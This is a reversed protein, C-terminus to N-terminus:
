KIEEVSSKFDNDWNLEITKNVPTAIIEEVTKGAPKLEIKPKKIYDLNYACALVAIWLLIVITTKSAWLKNLINTM